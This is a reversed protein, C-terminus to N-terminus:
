QKSAAAQEKLASLIEYPISLNGGIGAGLEIGSGDEGHFDSGGSPLLGCEKTLSACLATQQPTHTSYWVEIGDLGKEKLGQVITKLAADNDPLLYPPHALITVGGAEHILRISEEPSAVFRKFYAPKGKALFKDFVEQKSAAFGKRVLVSAIHPRGVSKDIAGGGVADGTVGAEREVEELTIAMGLENLKRIIQPNRTDRGERLKRLFELLAECHPNLFLGVIHLTGRASEASIEVGSVTEIGCRKGAAHFAALGAVTDHDTLAVAKLGLSRAREILQEPTLRGDSATSHCHLDIRQSPVPYEGHSLGGTRELTYLGEGIHRLRFQGSLKSGSFIACIDERAHGTSSALSLGGEDARRVHGREHSVPGEYTLYSRRHNHIKRLLDTRAQPGASRESGERGGPSGADLPFTDRLTAFTKLVVDDAGNGQDLELALDYHDPHGPWGTHHLVAFRM